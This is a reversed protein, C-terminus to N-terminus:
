DIRFVRRAPIHPPLCGSYYMQEGILERLRKLSRRRWFVYYDPNGADLATDWITWLEECEAIAEPIWVERPFLRARDQLWQKYETNWGRLERCLEMPPFRIADCLPPADRLEFFRRRMDALDYDLQAPDALWYRCERRDMLEMGLAVCQLVPLPCAPKGIPVDPPATIAVAAIVFHLPFIL